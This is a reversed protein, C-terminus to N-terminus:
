LATDVQPAQAPQELRKMERYRDLGRMMATAVWDESPKGSTAAATDPTAAVPAAPVYPARRLDAAGPMTLELPVPAKQAAGNKDVAPTKM